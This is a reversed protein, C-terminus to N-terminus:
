ASPEPPTDESTDEEVPYRHAMDPRYHDQKWREIDSAYVFWPNGIRVAKIKGQKAALLMTNRAVGAQKAAATIPLLDNIESSTDDSPVDHSM